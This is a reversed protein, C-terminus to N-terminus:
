FADGYFLDHLVHEVFEGPKTIQHDKLSQINFGEVKGDQMNYAYENTGVQWLNLSTFTISEGPGPSPYLTVGLMIINNQLIDLELSVFCQERNEYDILKNLLDIPIQHLITEANQIGLMGSTGSGLRMRM